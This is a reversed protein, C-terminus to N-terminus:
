NPEEPQEAKDAQLQQRLKHQKLAEICLQIEETQRHMEAVLEEITMNRFRELESVM